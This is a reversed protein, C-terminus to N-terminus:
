ETCFRINVKCSEVLNTLMVVKTVKEQWIMKWFDGIMAKNPGQSAIYAKPRNYGQLVLFWSKRHSSSAVIPWTM